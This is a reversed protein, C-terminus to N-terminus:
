GPWRAELAFRLPQLFDEYRRWRGVSSSYIPQRVQGSSATRVIRESRHFQLCADEWHLGIFEVLQRIQSEPSSVLAEYDVTHIPLELTSKWHEM